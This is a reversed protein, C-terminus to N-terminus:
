KENKIEKKGNFCFIGDHHYKPTKPKMYFKRQIYIFKVDKPMKLIYIEVM